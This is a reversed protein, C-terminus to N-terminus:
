HLQAIFGHIVSNKDKYFGAIRNKDNIGTFRTDESDRYSYSIFAGNLKEVYGHIKGDSDFYFGVIHGRNNIGRPVTFSTGPYDLPATVSGDSHRLFGHYSSFNVLYFGVVEDADNLGYAIAQYVGGPIDIISGVGAITVFAYTAHTTNDGALGCFDGADNLGYIFTVDLGPYDYQTYSGDILFFGHGVGTVDGFWGAVTQAHNVGTAQTTGFADDPDVIPASFTGDRMRTFGRSVSSSDVYYGAIEDRKNIGYTITDNGDGPYDFTALITIGATSPDAAAGVCTLLLSTFFLLFYKLV